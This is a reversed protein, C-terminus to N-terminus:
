NGFGHLVVFVTREGRVTGQVIQGLVNSGAPIKELLAEVDEIKEIVVRIPAKENGPKRYALERIVMGERLGDYFARSGEKVDRIYVGSDTTLNSNERLEDTLTELAM